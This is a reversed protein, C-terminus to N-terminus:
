LIKQYIKKFVSIHQAANFRVFRLFNQVIWFLISYTVILLLYCRCFVWHYLWRHIIFFSVRCFTVLLLKIHGWRGGCSIMWHRKIISTSRVSYCSCIPNEGMISLLCLAICIRTFKSFLSALIVMECRLLLILYLRLYGSNPICDCWVILCHTLSDGWLCMGVIAWDSLFLFGGDLIYLQSSSKFNSRLHFLNCWYTSLRGLIKSTDSVWSSFRVILWHNDRLDLWSSNRVFTNVM